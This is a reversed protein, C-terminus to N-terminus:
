SFGQGQSRLHDPEMNDSSRLWLTFVSRLTTQMLAFTDAWLPSSAHTCIDYVELVAHFAGWTVLFILTVYYYAIVAVRLCRPPSKQAPTHSSDNLFFILSSTEKGYWFFFYLSHVGVNNQIFTCRSHKNKNVTNLNTVEKGLQRSSECCMYFLIGKCHQCFVYLLLLHWLQATFMNITWTFVNMNCEANANGKIKVLSNWYAFHEPQFNWLVQSGVLYHMMCWADHM